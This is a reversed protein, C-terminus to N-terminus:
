KNGIENNNNQTGVANDEELVVEGDDGEKKALAIIECREIVCCM